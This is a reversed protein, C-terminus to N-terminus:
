LIEFNGSGLFRSCKTCIWHCFGFLESQNLMGVSVVSHFSSILALRDTLPQDTAQQLQASGACPVCKSRPLCRIQMLSACLLPIPIPNASILCSRLRDTRSDSTTSAPLCRLSNPPWRCPRRFAIAARRAQLAAVKGSWRDTRRKASHNSSRSEIVPIETM